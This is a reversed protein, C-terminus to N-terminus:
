IKQAIVIIMGIMGETIASIRGDYFAVEHENSEKIARERLFSTTALFHRSADERILIKFGAERIMDIYKAPHPANSSTLDRTPIPHCPGCYDALILTSGPELIDSCVDLSADLEDHSHFFSVQAWIHSYKQNIINEPLKFFNEEYFEVDLPQPAQELRERARAINKTSLDVAKVSCGFQKALNIAPTGEGCGLDLVTSTASIQGLTALYTTMRQCAEPFPIHLATAQNEFQDEPQNGLQEELQNGCQFTYYGDGLNGDGRALDHWARHNDYHDTIAKVEGVTTM